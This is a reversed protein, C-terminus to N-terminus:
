KVFYPNKYRIMKTDEHLNKIVNINIEDTAYIANLNYPIELEINLVNKKTNQTRNFTIFKGEFCPYCMLEFGKTIKEQCWGCISLRRTCGSENCLKFIFGGYYIHFDCADQSCYDCKILSSSLSNKQDHLFNRRLYFCSDKVMNSYVFNNTNILKNYIEVHKHCIYSEIVSSLKIYGSLQSNKNENFKKIEPTLLREAWSYPVLQQNSCYKCSIDKEIQFNFNM